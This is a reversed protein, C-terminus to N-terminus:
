FPHIADSRQQPRLPRPHLRTEWKLTRAQKRRLVPWFLSKTWRSSASSPSRKRRPLCAHSPSTTKMAPTTRTTARPALAVAESPRITSLAPQSKAQRPRPPWPPIRASTPHTAEWLDWLNPKANPYRARSTSRQAASCQPALSLKHARTLRILRPTLLPRITLVRFSVSPLSTFRAPMLDVLLSALPPKVLCSRRGRLSLRRLTKKQLLLMKDRCRGNLRRRRCARKMRISM